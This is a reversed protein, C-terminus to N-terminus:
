SVKEYFYSIENTKDDYTFITKGAHFNYFSLLAFDGSCASTHMFLAGLVTFLQLQNVFLALIILAGSIVTFPALAVIRFETRSAVFKDAIALFYFKRLNMDFSTQTAGQWRYALAHLYEHLPILLFFFGIGTALYGLAEGLKVQKSAVYYAMFFVAIMFLVFTTAYYFVSAFTRKKLYTQVFPIMDKHNLRELLTYQPTSLEEPSLQM